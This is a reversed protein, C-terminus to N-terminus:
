ILEPNIAHLSLMKKADDHLGCVLKSLENSHIVPLSVERGSVKELEKRNSDLLYFAQTNDVVIFDANNDFADLMVQAALKYTLNPNKHFTNLALDNTLSPLLLKNAELSNILTQTKDCGNLGTYYAINFDKFSHKVISTGCAKDFEISKVNSPKFNQESVNKSVNLEQQLQEIKNEISADFNYIRNSLNTHFHIGTKEDLLLAQIKEKNYGNQLLDYCLLIFADGIYAKNLLLTNSAYYALKYSEYLAKNEASLPNDLLELKEYFSDEKILLDKYALSQNLPEIILDTGFDKKIQELTLDLTTYLGNLVVGFNQKKEFGLPADNNITQLIDLLNTENKIKIYHKTYYPLYDSKADFKYLSIELKM